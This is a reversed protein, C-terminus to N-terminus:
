MKALRRDRARLTNKGEEELDNMIQQLQDRRLNIGCKQMGEAIKATPIVGEKKPDLQYFADKIVTRSFYM